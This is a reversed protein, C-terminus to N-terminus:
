KELNCIKNYFLKEDIKINRVEITKAVGSQREILNYDLTEVGDKNRHNVLIFEFESFKKSKNKLKKKM